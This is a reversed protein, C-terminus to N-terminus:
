KGYIEKEFIAALYYRDYSPRYIRKFERKKFGVKKALGELEGKSFYKGLRGNDMQSVPGQALTEDNPTFTSLCFLGQPKLFYAVRELYSKHDELSQHHMCGNDIVVDFSGEIKQSTMFNEGIFVAKPHEEQIKKWESTLVLDVGVVQAGKELFVRADRGRGTGLDLVRSSSQGKISDLFFDTCEKLASEETWVDKQDRYRESFSRQLIEQYSEM